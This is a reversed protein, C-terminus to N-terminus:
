VLLLLGVYIINSYMFLIAICQMEDDDNDENIADIRGISYM